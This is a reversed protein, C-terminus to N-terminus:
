LGRHERLWAREADLAEQRTEFGEVVDYTDPNTNIDVTGDAGIVPGGVPRMDALWGPRTPHPEVHSARRTTAAGLEQLDRVADAYVFHLDGDADVLIDHEDSM